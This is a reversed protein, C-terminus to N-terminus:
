KGRGGKKKERELNEVSWSDVGKLNKLLKVHLSDIFKEKFLDMELKIIRNFIIADVPYNKPLIWKEILNKISFETELLYYLIFQVYYYAVIRPM